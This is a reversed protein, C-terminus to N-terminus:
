TPRHKERRTLKRALKKLGKLGGKAAKGKGREMNAASATERDWDKLNSRGVGHEFQADRTNPELIMKDRILSAAPNEMTVSLVDGVKFYTLKKMTKAGENRSIINDLNRRENDSQKAHNTIHRVEPAAYSLTGIRGKAKGGAVARLSAAAGFDCLKLRSRDNEDVFLFNEAKVDRHVIHRAHVFALAELVQRMLSSAEAEPLGRAVSPRKRATHVIHDYLEGGWCPEMVIQYMGDDNEFAESRFCPRNKSAAAPASLASIETSYSRIAPGEEAPSSGDVLEKVAVLRGAADIEEALYVDGYSGSPLHSPQDAEPAEELGRLSLIIRMAAEKDVRLRPGGTTAGADHNPDASDEHVSIEHPYRSTEASPIAPSGVSLAELTARLVDPTLTWSSHRSPKALFSPHSGNPPFCRYISHHARHRLNLHLRISQFRPFSSNRRTKVAELTTSPPSDQTLMLAAAAGKRGRNANQIGSGSWDNRTIRWVCARKGGSVQSYKGKKRPGSGSEASSEENASASTGPPRFSEIKAEGCQGGFGGEYGFFIEVDPDMVMNLMLKGRLVPVIVQDILNPFIPHNPRGGGLSVVHSNPALFM